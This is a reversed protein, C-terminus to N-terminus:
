PHGQPLTTGDRYVLGYSNRLPLKECLYAKEGHGRSPLEGVASLLWGRLMLGRLGLGRPRAERHDLLRKGEALGEWYMGGGAEAFALM